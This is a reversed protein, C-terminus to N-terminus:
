HHDLDSMINVYYEDEAPDEVRVFPEADHDIISSSYPLVSLSSSEGVSLPAHGPRCPRKQLPSSESSSSSDDSDDEPGSDDSDDSSDDDSEDSSSPDNQSPAAQPPPKPSVYLPSSSFDVPAIALGPAANSSNPIDYTPNPTTGPPALVIIALSAVDPLDDSTNPDFPSSATSM